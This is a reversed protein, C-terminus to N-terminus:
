VYLSSVRAVHRERPCFRVSDSPRNLRMERSQLFQSEPIRTQLSTGSRGVSSAPSGTYDMIENLWKHDYAKKVDVWALSLNGKGRHCDQSVMKGIMITITIIIIIIIIIIMM